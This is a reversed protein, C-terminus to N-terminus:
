RPGAAIAENALRTLVAKADPPPAKAQWSYLVGRHLFWLSAPACSAGCTIPHFFGPDGTALRLNPKGPLRGGRRGEFSAVFCATAGGCRPAAGLELDWSTRTAGGTPYVRHAPGLVLLYKPLLVPVTTTRKIAPLQSRFTQLLDIRGIPVAAAGLVVLAAALTKV